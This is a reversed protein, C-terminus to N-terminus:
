FRLTQLSLKVRISNCTSIFRYKNDGADAIMTADDSGTIVTFIEIIDDLFNTGTIKANDFLNLDPWLRDGDPPQEAVPYTGSIGPQLCDPIEDSLADSIRYPPTQSRVKTQAKHSQLLLM